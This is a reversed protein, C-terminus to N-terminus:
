NAGHCRKFKLGSGCPCPENRGVTGLGATINGISPGERLAPGEAFMSEGTCEKSALEPDWAMECNWCVVVAEDRLMNHTGLFVRPDGVPPREGTALLTIPAKDVEPHGYGQVMQRAENDTLKYQIMARWEHKM